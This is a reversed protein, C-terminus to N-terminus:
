QNGVTIFQGNGLDVVEFPLDPMAITGTGGSATLRGYRLALELAADERARRREEESQTIGLEAALAALGLQRRAIEANQKAINQQAIRYNAQSQGVAGAYQNVDGLYANQLEQAYAQTAAVQEPSGGISGVYGALTAQPIIAGAPNFAYAAMPDTAQLSALLAAEGAGIRAEEEARLKRLADLLATSPAPTTTGGTERPPRRSGSGGGGGGRGGGGGTDGTAGGTSRQQEEVMRAVQAWDIAEAANQRRAANTPVARGTVPNIDFAGGEWGIGLGAQGAGGRAIADRAMQESTRFSAQYDPRRNAPLSVAGSRAATAARQAALREQAPDRYVGVVM